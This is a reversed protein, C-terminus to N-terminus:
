IGIKVQFATPLDHISHSLMLYEAVLCHTDDAASLHNTANCTVLIILPVFPTNQQYNYQVQLYRSCISSVGSATIGRKIVRNHKATTQHVELTKCCNLGKSNSSSSGPEDSFVRQKQM